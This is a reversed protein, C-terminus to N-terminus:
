KAKQKGGKAYCKSQSVKLDDHKSVKLSDKQTGGTKVKVTSPSVNFVDHKSGESRDSMERRDKGYVELRADDGEVNDKSEKGGGEQVRSGKSTDSPSVDSTGNDECVEVKKEEEM